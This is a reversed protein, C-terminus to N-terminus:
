GGGEGGTLRNMEYQTIIKLSVNKVAGTGTRHVPTYTFHRPQDFKMHLWKSPSLKM